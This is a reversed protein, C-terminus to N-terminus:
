GEIKTFICGLHQWSYQVIDLFTFTPSAVLREEDDTRFGWSAMYPLWCPMYIVEPAKRAAMSADPYAWTGALIEFYEMWWCRGFCLLGFLECASTHMTNDVVLYSIICLCTLISFSYKPLNPPNPKNPLSQYETNPCYDM